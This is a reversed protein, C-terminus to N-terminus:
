NRDEYYSIDNGFPNKLVNEVPPAKAGTDEEKKNNWNIGDWNSYYEKKDSYPRPKSGKSM